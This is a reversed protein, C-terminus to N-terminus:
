LSVFERVRAAREPGGAQMRPQRVDVRTVIRMQGWFRSQLWCGVKYIRTLCGPRAVCRSIGPASGFIRLSRPALVGPLRKEKARAAPQRVQSISHRIRVDFDCDRGVGEAGLLSRHVTYRDLLVRQRILDAQRRRTQGSSCCNEDASRGAFRCARLAPLM